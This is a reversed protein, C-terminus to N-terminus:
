IAISRDLGSTIMPVSVKSVFSILEESNMKPSNSTKLRSLSSSGCPPTRTAVRLVMILETARTPLDESNRLMLTFSLWSLDTM